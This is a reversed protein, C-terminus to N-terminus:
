QKKDPVSSNNQFNDVSEKLQDISEKMEEQQKELNLFRQDVEELKRAVYASIDEVNIQGGEQTIQSGKPAVINMNGVKTVELGPGVKVEPETYNGAEQAPLHVVFVAAVLIILIAALYLYKKVM